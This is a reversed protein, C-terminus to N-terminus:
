WCEIGRGQALKRARGLLRSEVDLEQASVVIASDRFEVRQEYALGGADGVVSLAEGPASLQLIPTLSTNRYIATQGRNEVGIRRLVATTTM